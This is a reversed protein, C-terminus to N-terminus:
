AKATAISLLKGPVYVQRTIQAASGIWKEFTEAPIAAYVAQEDADAAVTVTARVKGDIQIAIDATTSTLQATDAVPWPQTHISPANGIREWLEEALHPAFPALLRLFMGFADPALAPEDELTRVCKMLASIATNCKFNPIDESVKAITHHLGHTATDSLAPADAQVRDALRWVKDLFRRVGVVSDTNWPTMDELPGMFMEYMRLTDAGYVEVTENPNIVNGKSKSMKQGDGALVTGPHRLQHFPETFDIYGLTHLVKTFFRAYLLHLVTHEAGGVYTDVPLWRDIAARSAFADTNHPDTFRFYYWSSDVFTDLTDVEPRWGKGFLRETREIFEESEALPSTGTPKFAVDTPLEWPLHEEPVPHPNGEPDYVIPIPAGWYRQRSVLWDRLKYTTEMTGGVYETIARKAADSEMGDFPGSNILTGDGAYPVTVEPAAIVQTIPIEFAQAFAHDREDHAPVAMIAGTGYQALVYDAIFVPIAEGTAPNIAHVGELRVGTKTREGKTRELETKKQAADIYSEIANSNTAQKKLNAVEVHEPALVLYTAGFLTDPRTTFVDIAPLTHTQHNNSADQIKFSIKAGDSRGIWNRQNIKTSEPWDVTDLGEILADAYETIKFFWQALERQEVTADCRECAGDVVQENALVTQCSPCWNVAADAKYALGNAYLLLFFWQTWRYYEPTHTGIERNWDYSLGLARLQQTFTNIAAETTERPHIGTKIAYNEAPLGFADWGMPHLVTYGNMRLFRSYIDTATFGEIHGVHLGSGSPYPFMDLVYRTDRDDAAADSAAHLDHQQWYQQWKQEIATHDYSTAM